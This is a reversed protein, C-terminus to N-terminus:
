SLPALFTESSTQFSSATTKVPRALRERLGPIRYANALRLAEARGLYRVRPEPWHPRITQLFAAGTRSVFITPIPPVGTPYASMEHTDFEFEGIKVKM